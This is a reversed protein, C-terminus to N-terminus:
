GLGDSAQLVVAEIQAQHDTIGTVAWRLPEGHQRLAQQIQALLDTPHDPMEVTTTILELTIM